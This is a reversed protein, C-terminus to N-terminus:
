SRASHHSGEPARQFRAFDIRAAAKQSRLSATFDFIFVSDKDDTADMDFKRNSRWFIRSFDDFAHVTEVRILTRYVAAKPRRNV